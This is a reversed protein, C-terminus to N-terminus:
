IRNAASRAQRIQRAEWTENKRSRRSKRVPKTGEKAKAMFRGPHCDMTHQALGQDGCCGRGCYACVAQGETTMSNLDYRILDAM